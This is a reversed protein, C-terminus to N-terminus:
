PELFEIDQTVERAGDVPQWLNVGFLSGAYIYGPRSPDAQPFSEYIPTGAAYAIAARLGNIYSDSVVADGVYSRAALREAVLNLFGAISDRPATKVSEWDIEDTM